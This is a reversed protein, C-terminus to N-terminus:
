IFILLYFCNFNLFIIIFRNKLNLRNLKQALNQAGGEEEQPFESESMRGLLKLFDLLQFPDLEPIVELSMPYQDLRRVRKRTVTDCSMLLHRSTEEEDGYFRCIANDTWSGLNMSIGKLRVTIRILDQWCDGSVGIEFAEATAEVAKRIEANFFIGGLGCSHNVSLLHAAAGKMALKYIFTNM